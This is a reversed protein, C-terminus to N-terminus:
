NRGFCFNEMDFLIFKARFPYLLIASIGLDRHLSIEIGQKMKNLLLIILCSLSVGFSVLVNIWWVVWKTEQTRCDIQNWSWESNKFTGWGGTTGQPYTHFLGRWVKLEERKELLSLAVGHLLLPCLPSPPSLSTWVDCGVQVLHLNQWQWRHLELVTCM